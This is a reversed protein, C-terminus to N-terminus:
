ADPNQMDKFDNPYSEAIKKLQWVINKSAKQAKESIILENDQETVIKAYDIILPQVIQYQAHLKKSLFREAYLCQMDFRICQEVSININLAIESIFIQLNHFAKDYRESISHHLQKKQTRLQELYVWWVGVGLAITGFAQLYDLWHKACADMM